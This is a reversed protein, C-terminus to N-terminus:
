QQQQGFEHKMSAKLNEVVRGFDSFIKKEINQKYFQEFPGGIRKVASTIDRLYRYLQHHVAVLSLLGFTLDGYTAQKSEMSFLTTERGDSLGDRPIVTTIGYLADERPVVLLPEIMLQQFNFWSTGGDTTSYHVTNQNLNGHVLVMPSDPSRRLAECWNALDFKWANKAVGEAIEGVAEVGEVLDENNEFTDIFDNTTQKFQRWLHVGTPTNNAFRRLIERLKDEAFEYYFGKYKNTLEETILRLSKGRYYETVKFSPVAPPVGQYLVDPISIWVNVFGYNSTIHKIYDKILPMEPSDFAQVTGPPLEHGYIKIIYKVYFGHTPPKCSVAIKYRHSSPPYNDVREYDGDVEWNYPPASLLDHIKAFKMDLPTFGETDMEEEYEGWDEEEEDSDFPNLPDVPGEPEFRPRPPKIVTERDGIVTFVRPDETAKVTVSRPLVSAVMELPFIHSFRVTGGGSGNIAPAAAGLIEQEASKM